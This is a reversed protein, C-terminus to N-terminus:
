WMKDLLLLYFGVFHIFVVVGYVRKMREEWVRDLELQRLQSWGLAYKNM